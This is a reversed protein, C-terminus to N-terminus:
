SSTLRGLFRLYTHVEDRCREALAPIKLAHGEGSLGRDAGDAFAPESILQPMQMRNFVTDGYPDIFGILCYRHVDDQPLLRGVLGFPDELNTLITGNEDQLSLRMGM